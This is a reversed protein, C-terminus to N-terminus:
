RPRRSSGATEGLPSEGCNSDVEMPLAPDCGISNLGSRELIRDTVVHGRSLPAQSGREIGERGVSIWRAHARHAVAKASRKRQM